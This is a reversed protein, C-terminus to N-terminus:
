WVIILFAWAVVALLTILSGTLLGKKYYTYNHQKVEEIFAQEM